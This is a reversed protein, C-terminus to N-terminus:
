FTSTGKFGTMTFHTYLSLNNGKLGKELEKQPSSEALHESASSRPFVTQAFGGSM